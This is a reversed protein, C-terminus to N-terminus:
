CQAKIKLIIRFFFDQFQLILHELALRRDLTLGLYRVSAILPFPTIKQNFFFQLALYKVRPPRSFIKRRKDTYGTHAWCHSYSFDFRIQFNDHSLM